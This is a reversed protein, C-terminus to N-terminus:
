VYDMLFIITDELTSVQQKLETNEEQLTKQKTLSMLKDLLKAEELTAPIEDADDLLVHREDIGSFTGKDFVFTDGIQKLNELGEYVTAFLGDVNYIAIKM